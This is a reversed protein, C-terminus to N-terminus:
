DDHESLSLFVDNSLSTVNREAIKKSNKMNAINDGNNIKIKDEKQFGQIM